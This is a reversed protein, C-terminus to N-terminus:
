VALVLVASVYLWPRDAAIVFVLWIALPYYESGRSRREVRHISRLLKTKEGALFLASLSATLVLFVLPSEILWPLALGIMGGGLHVLKRTHEPKGGLRSWVEAAVLIVAFEGAILVAGHLDTM